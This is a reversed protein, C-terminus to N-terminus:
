NTSSKRSIKPKNLMYNIIPPAQAIFNVIIKIDFNHLGMSELEFKPIKPETDPISTGYKDVDVGPIIPEHPKRREGNM